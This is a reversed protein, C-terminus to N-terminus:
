DEDPRRLVTIVLYSKQTTTTRYVFEYDSYYTYKTKDFLFTKFPVTATLAASSDLLNYNTGTRGYMYIKGGQTGSVLVSAADISVVHSGIAQVVTITTDTNNTTDKTIHVTKIPGFEKPQNIQAKLCFCAGLITLLFLIKKM